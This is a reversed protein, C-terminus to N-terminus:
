MHPQRYYRAFQELYGPETAGKEGQGTEGHGSGTERRSFGM